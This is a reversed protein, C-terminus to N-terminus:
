FSFTSSLSVSQMSAGGEHFESRYAFGVSIAETLSYSAGLNVFFLDNGLGDAEARMPRSGKSFRASVAMPDESVGANFGIKSWVTLREALDAQALIALEIMLSQHSADDVGFDVFM